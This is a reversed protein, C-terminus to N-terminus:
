ILNQTNQDDPYHKAKTLITKLKKDVTQQNQQKFFTFNLTKNTKFSSTYFYIHM